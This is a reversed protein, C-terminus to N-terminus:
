ESFKIIAKLDNEFDSKIVVFCSSNELAYFCAVKENLKTEKKYLVEVDSFSNLDINEPVTEYAFDIYCLNNVHNNLDIDRKQIDYKFGLKLGSPENIKKPPSDFIKKECIGYRKVMNSDPRFIEGKNDIVVWKTSAVCIVNGFQDLMEFDRLFCVGKTGRSWTKITLKTAWCPRSFIKIRQSILIWNHQISSMHSLGCGVADLHYSSAEQLLRLLGRDTAENNQNVDCFEVSACYEFVNYIQDKM